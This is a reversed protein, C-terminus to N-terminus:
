IVESIPIASKVLHRATMVYFVIVCLPLICLVLLELLVIKDYYMKSGNCLVGTNQTTLMSPLSFLSALYWVGCITAKTVRWTVPSQVRIKIPNVTVKYRQISLLAVSYASLGISLRPCFAFIKCLFESYLWKRSIIDIHALPLNKILSILDSIALNLIYINPVTRMEKNCVIMILIIVNRTEGFTFLVAYVSSQVYTLFRFCKKIALGVYGNTHKNFFINIIDMLTNTTYVKITDM